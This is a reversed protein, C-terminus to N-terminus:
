NATSGKQMGLLPSNLPNDKFLQKQMAIMVNAIRPELARYDDDTFIRLSLDDNYILFSACYACVSIDDPQPKTSEDSTTCAHADLNTGCHPCPTPKSKEM